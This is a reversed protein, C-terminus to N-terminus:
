ATALDATSVEATATEIPVLVTLPEEIKADQSHNTLRLLLSNTIEQGAKVLLMGDTTKVDSALLWGVSLAAAPVERSEYEPQKEVL